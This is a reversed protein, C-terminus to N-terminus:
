CKTIRWLFDEAGVGKDTVDVWWTGDGRLRRSVLYKNRHRDQSKRLKYGVTVNDQTVPEIMWCEDTERHPTKHVLARGDKGHTDSHVVLMRGSNTGHLVEIKYCPESNVTTYMIRWKDHKDQRYTPQTHVWYSSNNRRDSNYTLAYGAAPGDIAEIAYEAGEEPMFGGERDGQIWMQSSPSREPSRLVAKKESAVYVLEHHVGNFNTELVTGGEKLKWHGQRAGNFWKTGGDPLFEIIGNPKTGDHAWTWVSGAINGPFPDLCVPAPKVTRTNKHIVKFQEWIDENNRDVELGGKPQASIFKNHSSRFTYKGNVKNVTFQEWDKASDRNWQLSGNKQASLYKGFYSRFAVVNPSIKIVDITESSGCDNVQCTANASVFYGHHGQLFVKGTVSDAHDPSDASAAACAAACAAASPGETVSFHEWAAAGERNVEIRGDPQASVYKGHYSLLTIRGDAVRGVHFFEWINPSGGRNWELTGNPQASLYKGYHSRFAVTDPKVQVVECVAAETVGTIQCDVGGNSLARVYKQHHGRLSVRTSSFNGGFPLRDRDGQIWMQSSPSREPSRLVAKKESAVYVLEHHVGNFSTELVTGGEKLKWHGQRAGNFWKTGGDPLFETIGNPKTGDHAWTWVSGAVEPFSAVSPSTHYQQPTLPQPPFMTGSLPPPQSAFNYLPPATPPADHISTNMMGSHLTDGLGASVGLLRTVEEEATTKGEQCERLEKRLQFVYEIVIDPALFGIGDRLEADSTQSVEELSSFYSLGSM